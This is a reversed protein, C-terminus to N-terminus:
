YAKQGTMNGGPTYNCVWIETHKGAQNCMARACGVATTKKWVVQSWHGCQMSWTGSAPDCDKVEAGWMDVVSAPTLQYNTTPSYGYSMALNEGAYMGKVPRSAGVAGRHQMNCANTDKLHNAWEQAYAVLEQSWQLPPVNVKARWVNHQAVFRKAFDSDAPADPSNSVSAASM